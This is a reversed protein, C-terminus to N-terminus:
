TAALLASASVLIAFSGKSMSGLPEDTNRTSAPFVRDRGSVCNKHSLLSISDCTGIVGGKTSDIDFWM